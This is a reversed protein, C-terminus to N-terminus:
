AFAVALLALGTWLFTLVAIVSIWLVDFGFLSRPVTLPM